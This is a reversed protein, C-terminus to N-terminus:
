INVGVLLDQRRTSHNGKCIEEKSTDEYKHPKKRTWIFKLILKDFKVFIDRQSNQNSSWWIQLNIQFSTVDKHYPIDKYIIKSSILNEKIEKM